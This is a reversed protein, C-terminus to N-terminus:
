GKSSPVFMRTSRELQRATRFRRHFLVLLVASSLAAVSGLVMMLAAAQDALNSWDPEAGLQGAWVVGLIFCSVGAFLAWRTARHVRVDHAARARDSLAVASGEAERLTQPVAEDGHLRDLSELPSAPVAGAQDSPDDEDDGSDEGEEWLETVSPLYSERLRAQGRLAADSSREPYKWAGWMFLAFLAALFLGVGVGLANGWTASWRTSAQGPARETVVVDAREGVHTCSVGWTVLPTYTVDDIRYSVRASTLLDDEACSTEIVVASTWVGNQRLDFWRYGFYAIALIASVLCLGWAVVSGWRRVTDWGARRGASSDPKRPSEEHPAVSVTATQQQERQIRELSESLSEGDISVRCGRFRAVSRWRVM